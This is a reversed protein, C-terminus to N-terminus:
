PATTRTVAIERWGGLRRCIHPNPVIGGTPVSNPQKVRVGPGFHNRKFKMMNGTIYGSYFRAVVQSPGIALLDWRLAVRVCRRRAAARPKTRTSTWAGLLSAPRM